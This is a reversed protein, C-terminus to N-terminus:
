KHSNWIVKRANLYRGTNRTENPDNIMLSHQVKNFSKPYFLFVMTKKRKLTHELHHVTDTM